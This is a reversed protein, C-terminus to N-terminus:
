AAKQDEALIRYVSARSIQLKQAIELPSVGAQRMQLVDHAKSRATPARGRYKGAAKAVSIGEKQRQLMIEREFQAISGVLNLLLKGTPTSTDLNLDLIKLSAEKTEVAQIIKVLDPISRALRDLKTVVLCDDKRIFKLLRELEGRKQVSSVQEFFIEQCGAAELDRKQADLGAIQETTSTRAYGIKLAHRGAENNEFIIYWKTLFSL